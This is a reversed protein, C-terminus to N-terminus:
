KKKIIDIIYQWKFNYKAAEVTKISTVKGEKDYLSGSVQVVDGVKVPMEFRFSYEKKIGEFKVSAIKFEKEKKETKEIINLEKLLKKFSLSIDKNKNKNPDKVYIDKPKIKMGYRKIFRNLSSDAKQIFEKDNDLGELNIWSIIDKRFQVTRKCTWIFDNIPNNFLYTDKYEERDELDYTECLYQSEINKNYPFLRRHMYVLMLHNQETYISVNSNCKIITHELQIYNIYQDLILDILKEPYYKYFATDDSYEMILYQFRKKNLCCVIDNTSNDYDHNEDEYVFCKFLFNSIDDPDEENFEEKYKKKYCKDIDKLSQSYKLLYKKSVEKIDIKNDVISGMDSIVEDKLKELTYAKMIEILQDTLKEKYHIEIRYTNEYISKLTYEDVIQNFQKETGEYYIHRLSSTFNYESCYKADEIGIKKINIPIYISLANCPFYSVTEINRPIIWYNSKFDGKLYAYINSFNKIGEPLVTDKTVVLSSNGLYELSKPLLLNNMQFGFFANSEIRKLGEQFKVKIYHYKDYNEHDFAEKEIVRLTKPFCIEHVNQIDCFSDESINVVGEHFVIQKITSRINKPISDYDFRDEFVHLVVGDLIYPEKKPNEIEKTYVTLDVRNTYMHDVAQYGGIKEFDNATGDYYIKRLKYSCAFASEDIKKIAKSLYLVEVRKSISYEGLENTEGIIALKKASSNSYHSAFTDDVVKDMPCAVIIEQFRSLLGYDPNFSKNGVVLCKEKNTSIEKTEENTDLIYYDDFTKSDLM